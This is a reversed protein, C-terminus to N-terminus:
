PAPPAPVLAAAAAVAVATADVQASLATLDLAPNAAQLAAIEAQIGTVATNLDSDEQALAATLADVDAQSAMAMVELRKIKKDQAEIHAWLLNTYHAFDDWFVPIRRSCPVWGPSPPSYKPDTGPVHKRTM